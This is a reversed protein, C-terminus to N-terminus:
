AGPVEVHRLKDPNRVIDVAVIRGADITLLWADQVVDEAEGLRGLIGYAVRTLRPRLREFAAALDAM